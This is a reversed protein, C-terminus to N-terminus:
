YVRLRCYRLITLFAVLRQLIFFLFGKSQHCLLSNNVIEIDHQTNTRFIGDLSKCYLKKNHHLRLDIIRMRVRMKM